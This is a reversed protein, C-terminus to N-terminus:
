TNPRCVGCNWMGTSAPAPIGASNPHRLDCRVLVENQGSHLKETIDLWFSTYGNKWQGAPEGNVFVATDMYVGGFWLAVREGPAPACAFTKVYYGTSDRYLDGAHRDAM